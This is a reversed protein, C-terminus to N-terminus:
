EENKHSTMSTQLINRTKKKKTAAVRSGHIERQNRKPIIAFWSNSKDTRANM